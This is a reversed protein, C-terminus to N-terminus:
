LLGAEKLNLYSATITEMATLNRLSDQEVVIWEAGAEVAAASSENIKVLGTGVATFQGREALAYLDKVHIASVRGALGELVEVPDAGAYTIWAIDPEFSVAAPETNDVLIDWGCKGDFETAFEHEHNHYCLTIGEEALRQGAQNYLAADALIQDKTQCPGFWVSARGARLQKASAIVQDLNDRLSDRKAKVTLIELGLGGLRDLNAQVDGELLPSPAWEIGRYGIQAIQEMTPWFDAEAEKGVIGILGSRAKTM